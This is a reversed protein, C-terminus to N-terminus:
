VCACVSPADVLRHSQAHMYACVHDANPMKLSAVGISLLAYVSLYTVLMNCLRLHMGRRINACFSLVIEFRHTQEKFALRALAVPFLLAGRTVAIFNM